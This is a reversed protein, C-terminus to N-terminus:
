RAASVAELSARVLVGKIASLKEAWARLLKPQAKLPLQNAVGCEQWGTYNILRGAGTHGSSFPGYCTEFVAIKDFM